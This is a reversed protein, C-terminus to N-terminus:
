RVDIAGDSRITGTLTTRSSLNMVRVHEGPAGRGLARGDTIIELGGRRYILSVLQNREVTAPPGVDNFRIPRGAYIAVRAELGIIGAADSFAGPLDGSRIALDGPQILAKPRLTRTAVVVDAAAGSALLALAMGLSWRM